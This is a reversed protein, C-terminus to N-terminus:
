PMPPPPPPPLDMPADFTEPDLSDDFPPMDLDLDPFGHEAFDESPEPLTSWWPFRAAQKYKKHFDAHHNAEEAAKRAQARAEALHQRAEEIWEDVSKLQKERLNEHKEYESSTLISERHSQFDELTQERIEIAYEHIKLMDISAQEAFAHSSAAREYFEARRVGRVYGLWGGFVLALVAVLVLLGKLHFRFNPWRM